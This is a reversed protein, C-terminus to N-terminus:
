PVARHRTGGGGVHDLVGPLAVVKSEIGAAQARRRKMRVYTASAPDDGVLVAALCPPRGTVARFHAAAEATTAGISAGLDAGTMLRSDPTDTM